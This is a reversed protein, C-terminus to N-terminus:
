LHMLCQTSGVHWFSTNYKGSLDLGMYEGKEQGTPHRTIWSPLMPVNCSIDCVKLGTRMECQLLESVRKLQDTTLNFQKELDRVAADKAEDNHVLDSAIMKILLFLFFALNLNDLSLQESKIYIAPLM